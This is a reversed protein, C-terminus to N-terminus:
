TGTESRAAPPVRRLAARKWDFAFPQRAVLGLLPREIFYTIATSVALTITWGLAIYLLKWHEDDHPNATAARPVDHKWMWIMLLTHWLYVNYSVLSLFVLVPNALLARWPRAAFCSFLVLGGAALAILTRNAVDWRAAGLPAYQVANASEFLAFAAAACLAAGLTFLWARRALEPRESRITVVLHAALMGTAFLDLYGPLQRSVTEVGLCCRAAEFRYVLSTAIMAVATAYPMRRFAQALIPFILYFQVEVALSWFVSNARGFGDSWFNQVFFAHTALNHWLDSPGIYEISFVFTAVLALAYSPVIKLFRRFAFERTSAIRGGSRVGSALPFFLVFGSITFFLDVGLYGNRPLVDVPVAVGFLTLEPTFWSFLWSHYFVVLLIAVGRLGDVAETGSRLHDRVPDNKAM